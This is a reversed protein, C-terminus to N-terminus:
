NNECSMYGVDKWGLDDILIFLINPRQEQKKTKMGSIPMCFVILFFIAINLQKRKM